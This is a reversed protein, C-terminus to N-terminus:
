RGAQEGNQARRLAAAEGAPCWHYRSVDDLLKCFAEIRRPPCERDNGLIARVGQHLTRRPQGAGRRYVGLMREAFERYRRHTAITLRDPEVRGTELDDWALAQRRCLM